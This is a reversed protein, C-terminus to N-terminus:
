LGTIKVNDNEKAYKVGTINFLELYASIPNEHNTNIFSQIKDISEQNAGLSLLVQSFSGMPNNLRESKPFASLAKELKFIDDIQGDAGTAAICAFSVLLGATYNLKPYANIHASELSVNMLGQISYELNETLMRYIDDKSILGLEEMAYYSILEAGGENFWRFNDNGMHAQWLHALEHAFFLQMKEIHNNDVQSGDGFSKALIQFEQAGGGFGYGEKDWSTHSLFINLKQNFRIGFRENYFSVCKDIFSKLVDELKEPFKQDIISVVYESEYIAEKDGFYVILNKRQTKTNSNSTISNGPIFISENLKTNFHYTPSFNNMMNLFGIKTYYGLPGTNVGIGKEFVIFPQPAYPVIDRYTSVSISVKNFSKNDKRKLYSYNTKQDTMIEFMSPVEWSSEHYKKTVPGIMIMKVKKDLAYEFIWKDENIHSITIQGKTTFFEKKNKENSNLENNMSVSCGYFFCFFLIIKRNIKKKSYWKM